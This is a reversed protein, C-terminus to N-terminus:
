ERKTHSLGVVFCRHLLSIPCVSFSFVFAITNLKTAGSLDSLSLLPKDDYSSASDDTGRCACCCLGILAVLAICAVSLGAIVTGSNDKSKGKPEPKSGKKISTVLPRAESEFSLVSRIAQKESPPPPAIASAGELLLRNKMAFPPNISNSNLFLNRTKEQQKQQGHESFPSNHKNLCDLFISAVEAPLLSATIAEEVSIKRPSSKKNNTRYSNGITSFLLSYHSKNRVDQPIRLNLYCSLWLQEM